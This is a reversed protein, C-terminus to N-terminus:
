LVELEQQTPEVWTRNVVGVRVRLDAPNLWGSQAYLCHAATVVWDPRVLAGGCLREVGSELEGNYEILVQWPM